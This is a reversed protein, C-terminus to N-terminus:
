LYARRARVQTGTAGTKTITFSMGPSLVFQGPGMTLLGSTDTGGNWPAGTSVLWASATDPEIRVSQGSPVTGVFRLYTLTATDTVKFDTSAGNGEAVFVPDLIPASGGQLATPTKTGATTSLDVTTDTADRWFARPISLTIGCTWMRRTNQELDSISVLYIGASQGVEDDLLTRVTRQVGMLAMLATYSTMASAYTGGRMRMALTVTGPGYVRTGGPLAGHQGPVSLDNVIVTPPNRVRSAALVYFRGAPDDLPVGDLTLM